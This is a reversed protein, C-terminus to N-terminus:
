RRGVRPLRRFAYVVARQLPHLRGSNGPLSQGYRESVWRREEDKSDLLETWLTVGVLEDSRAIPHAELYGDRRFYETLM